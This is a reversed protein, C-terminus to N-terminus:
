DLGRGGGNFMYVVMGLSTWSLFNILKKINHLNCEVPAEESRTRSM